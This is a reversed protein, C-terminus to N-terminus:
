VRAETPTRSSAKSSDASGIKWGRHDSAPVRMTGVCVEGSENCNWFPATKLKTEGIPRGDKALARIWLKGDAVKFVLPPIPYRKGNLERGAGGHEGFFLIRHQAPTWWVMRDSTRALVSAPLIEAEVCVGLGTSLTRLFETTLPEAEGLYPAGEMPGSKVPHWAAFVELGGRYVLVAGSLTMKQGGGIAVNIEM